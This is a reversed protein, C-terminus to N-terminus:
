EASAIPLFVSVTTGEGLQSEVDIEGGLHELLRRSIALGPGTGKEPEKTSFFPEFIREMHEDPIGVGTDEITAVVSDGDTATSVEVRPEGDADTRIAQAASTWLNVFVQGLKSEDSIVDPTDGFDCM